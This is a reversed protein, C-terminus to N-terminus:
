RRDIQSVRRTWRYIDGENRSWGIKQYILEAAFAEEETACPHVSGINIFTHRAWPDVSHAQKQNSSSIKESRRSRAAADAFVFDRRVVRTRTRRSEQISSPETLSINSPLGSETEDIFKIDEKSNKKSLSQFLGHPAARTKTQFESFDPVSKVVEVGDVKTKLYEGRLKVSVRMSEENLPRFPSARLIVGFALKKIHAQLSPENQLSMSEVTIDLPRGDKSIRFSLRIEVTVGRRPSLLPSLALTIKREVYKRYDELNEDSLSFAIKPVMFEFFVCIFTVILVKTKTLSRRQLRSNMDTPKDVLTTSIVKHWM